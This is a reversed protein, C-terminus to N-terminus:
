FRTMEVFKRYREKIRASTLRVLGSVSFDEVVFSAMMTGYILAKKITSPTMKGAQSLYGIMGGAFTDGAGTPDKIEELLYAPTSFFCDKSFFLVGHEGKKIIVSKAGYSMIFKAAKILNSEGSLLRAEGENLLFMDVKKILKKLSHNKSEIWFNMTDCLVLKPKRVQRLVRDQLDPDINALFLYPASKHTEPIVPMFDKFVNLHTYITKPSNLDFGYVGKWAFTKGPKVELGSTDVSRSQLTKVYKDPFDQGVVAV